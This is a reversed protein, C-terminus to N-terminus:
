DDITFQAAELAGDPRTSSIVRMGTAPEYFGLLVRYRGKPLASAPTIRIVEAFRVDAQWRTTPFRGARPPADAQAVLAGSDDVVHVFLTYDVPASKQALWRLELTQQTRTSEKISAGELAAFDGLRGLPQPNVASAPQSPLYLLADFLPAGASGDAASHSVTEGTSRNYLDFQVRLLEPGDLALGAPLNLEIEDRFLQGAQWQLSPYLGSGTYGEKRVLLAGDHDYLKAVLFYNTGPRALARLAVSIRLPEGARVVQPQVHYGLVEALPAMRQTVPRFHVPVADLLPPSFAPAVVGLSVAVGLVTAALGVAWAGPATLRVRPAYFRVADALAWLGAGLLLTCGALAPYLLRGQSAYTQLTWRWLAVFTGIAHFVLAGILVVRADPTRV